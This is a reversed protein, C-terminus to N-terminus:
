KGFGDGDEVNENSFYGDPKIYVPKPTETSAGLKVLLGEIIPINRLATAQSVALEREMEAQSNSLDASFIGLTPMTLQPKAFKREATLMRRLTDIGVIGLEVKRPLGTIERM